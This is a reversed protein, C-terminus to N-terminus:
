PRFAKTIDTTADPLDSLFAKLSDSLPFLKFSGGDFLFVPSNATKVDLVLFIQPEDVDPHSMHALAIYDKFDGSWNADDFGQVLAYEEAFEDISALEPLVFNLNYTGRIYGSLEIVPHSKYEGSLLFDKYSQPLAVNYNEEMSEIFEQIDM